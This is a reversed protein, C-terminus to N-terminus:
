GQTVGAHLPQKVKKLMKIMEDPSIGKGADFIIEELKKTKSKVM